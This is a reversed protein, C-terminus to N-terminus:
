RAVVMIFCATIGTLAALILVCGSSKSTTQSPAPPKQPAPVQAELVADQRDAEHTYLSAVVM